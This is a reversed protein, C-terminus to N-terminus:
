RDPHARDSEPLEIAFVTGRGAGGADLLSLRGGQAAVLERAIALGLGTGEARGTVFPEFLTTRLEPAVGEGTDEVTIRLGADTPAAHVRVTGGPPTHRIANELLNGIARRLLDPDLSAARMEADARLAVGAAAADDRHDALCDALLATLDVTRPAVERRQTMSLLAAVLRDLRGIQGLIMEIAARRRADDGARANEARLRMAAIPNRIEHALGAAVRGLAAMREADAVRRSLADSRAGAAALRRGADNLAAVIRDLEREGTPALVPLADVGAALAAEFGRLRRSWTLLLWAIAAAMGVVLAALVGLGARLSDFGETAEVRAATWATLDAIPGPLPCATLLLLRGGIRVRM